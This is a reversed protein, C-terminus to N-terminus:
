LRVMLLLHYSDTSIGEIQGLYARSSDNRPCIFTRKCEDFLSIGKHGLQRFPLLPSKSLRTSMASLGRM